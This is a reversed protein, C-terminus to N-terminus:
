QDADKIQSAFLAAVQRALEKESMDQNKVTADITQETKDTQDLMNKGLWVQMTANGGMANQWQARRLSARGGARKKESYDAFKVGNERECARSLTDYSVNMAGAIEEGTCQIHLLNDCLDWDIKKLKPGRKGM